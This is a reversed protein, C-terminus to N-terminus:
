EEKLLLKSVTLIINRPKTPKTKQNNSKTQTKTPNKTKAQKHPTKNNHHHQKGEVLWLIYNVELNFRFRNYSYTIVFMNGTFVSSTDPYYYQLLQQSNAGAKNDSRQKTSHRRSSHIRVEWSQM